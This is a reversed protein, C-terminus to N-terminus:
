EIIYERGNELAWALRSMWNHFISQVEHFAREDWIKTALEETEDSSNLECDKLVGKLM